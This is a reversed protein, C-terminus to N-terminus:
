GASISLVGGNNWLQGAKHPDSTPLNELIIPSNTDLPTVFNAADIRSRLGFAGLPSFVQSVGFPWAAEFGLQYKKVRGSTGTAQFATFNEGQDVDGTGQVAITSHGFNTAAWSSMWVQLGIGDFQGVSNYIQVCPSSKNWCGFVHQAPASEGIVDNISTPRPANIRDYGIQTWSCSQFSNAISTLRLDAGGPNRAVLVSNPMIEACGSATNFQLTTTELKVNGALQFFGNAVQNARSMRSNIITLPAISGLSKIGVLDQENEYFDILVSETVGSGVFVGIDSFGGGMHRLDFSGNVARIGYECWLVQVRSFVHHKSNQSNGIYIGIGYSQGTHVTAGSQATPANAAMVVRSGDTVSVITTDHIGTAYSVRIRKGVDASIFGGSAVLNPSGAVLVGNQARLQAGEESCGFINNEIIYSEHNNSATESISVAKFNPNKQNTANFTNFRVLGATGIHNVPNGDFNIFKDVFSGNEVYFGLGQFVPHDTHLVNFMVGGNGSWVFKPSQGGGFNQQYVSSIIQLGLRDIIQIGPSSIKLTCNLPITITGADPTTDVLVQFAVTSDAVGTCDLSQAFVPNVFLILCLILKKM